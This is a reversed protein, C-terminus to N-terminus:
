TLSSVQREDAARLLQLICEFWPRGAGSGDKQNCAGEASWVDFYEVGIALTEALAAIAADPLDSKSALAPAYSQVIGALARRSEATETARRHRISNALIRLCLMGSSRLDKARSLGAAAIVAAGTKPPAIAGGDVIIDRIFTCVRTDADKDSEVAVALAALLPYASDRHKPRRAWGAARSRALELVSMWADADINRLSSGNEAVAFSGQQLNALASVLAECITHKLDPGLCKCSTRQTLELSLRLCQTSARRLAPTSLSLRLFGFASSTRVGSREAGHPFARVAATLRSAISLMRHTSLIGLLRGFPSVPCEAHGCIHEFCVDEIRLCVEDDLNNGDYHYLAICLAEAWVFDVACQLKDRNKCIESPVLDYKEILYKSACEAANGRWVELSSIVQSLCRHSLLQIQKCCISFENLQISHAYPDQQGQSATTSQFQKVVAFVAPQHFFTSIISHVPCTASNSM